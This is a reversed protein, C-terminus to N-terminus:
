HRREHHGRSRESRGQRQRDAARIYAFPQASPHRRHAPHTERYGRGHAADAAQIYGFPRAAHHGHQVPHRDRHRAYAPASLATLLVCGTLLVSPSWRWSAKM